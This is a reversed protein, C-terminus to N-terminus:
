GTPVGRPFCGRREEDLEIWPQASSCWAEIEPRLWSRDELTGAKILAIGPMAEPLSAIPSGCASCFRRDVPLKTDTGITQFTALTDGSVEFAERPVAVVISFSTGTQKQCDTCHCIATVLPEADCRYTVSGCLCSGDLKGV